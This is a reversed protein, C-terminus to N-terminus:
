IPQIIKNKYEPSKNKCAAGAKVDKSFLSFVQYRSTDRYIHENNDGYFSSDQAMPHVTEEGPILSRLSDPKSHVMTLINEGM